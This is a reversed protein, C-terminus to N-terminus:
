KEVWGRNGRKRFFGYHLPLNEEELSGSTKKRSTKNPTGESIMFQIRFKFDEWDLITFPHEEAIVIQRNDRFFVPYNGQYGQKYLDATVQERENQIKKNKESGYDRAPYTASAAAIKEWIVQYVAQGKYSTMYNCLLKMMGQIPHNAYLKLLIRLFTDNAETALKDMLFIGDMTDPYEDLISEHIPSWYRFPAFEMLPLLELEQTNCLSEGWYEYKDYITGVIYVIRRWQEQGKVWFHGIEHYRYCQLQKEVTDFWITFVQENGQHIILANTQDQQVMEALLSGDFDSLYTGTTRCNKLIYYCEVSDNMMYPIYYDTQQAANAHAYLELAHEEALQSIHHQFDNITTSNM